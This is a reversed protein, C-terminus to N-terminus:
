QVVFPSPSVTPASGDLGEGWIYWNGATAPTPVYAGWLDTNVLIAATWSSPPTSASLSFGFQVPSAAPSVTPMSASQGARMRTPAARSSIGHSPLLLSAHRGTNRRHCDLVSTGRWCCNVGIVVFDYSTAAQLGTIATGTGSIGTM